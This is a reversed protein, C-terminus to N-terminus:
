GCTPLVSEIHDYKIPKISKTKAKAKFLELYKGWEALHAEVKEQYTKKIDM